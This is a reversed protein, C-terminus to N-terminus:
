NKKTTKILTKYNFIKDKLTIILTKFYSFEETNRYLLVILMNPIILCILLKIILEAILFQTKVLSSIYYTILATIITFVLYIFYNKFYELVNKNFGYKFLILAEIWICVTISSIITGMFIGAVGYKFSLLISVVLNVIAEIIAKYRDKYFLGLAERFTLVSQRMGKLYYMIVILITIPMSFLYEEGVWLKIFPNLLTMLCITSFSFIWFGLFDIKKFINYQKETSESVCLNGISASLSNYLQSTITNLATTILLYNSYIGVASLSVFKSILINDTSNVVIGGIKHMMMAKTNAFIDKKLKADISKVKKSKLYPYMKDAKRSVLINEVITMIIQTVLYLIYKKTIILVLIQIINLLIYCIYRYFTAIYRHQDAIILTRKYSFFYSVSTNIVFLIYILNINNIDPMDKIFFSLFPTILIGLIFITIGVIIYIIKFLRMLTKVKEEDNEELPRYLSYTIATGFGLEAFSLVTLINTFLSNLGLYESSLIKVFVIRAIFSAVLGLAQGTIAYLLNQITSKTRSM